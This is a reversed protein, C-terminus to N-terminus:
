RRWRDRWPRRPGRARPSSASSSAPAPRQPDAKVAYHAARDRLHRIVVEGLIYLVALCMVELDLQENRDHIKKWERYSRGKRWKRLGVEATLQRAYEEDVWEPFHMYGPGPTEVKLRSYVIGKATDTCMTFLKGGYKKERTPRGVVPLGTLSGGRLAFVRQRINGVAREARATCFRYAQETHGVKGHTDVGVAEIYMRRGNAHEFAQTLFRDAERWVDDRLPDGFFQHIAILWSEEGAGYGKVKVELRDAQGDVAAILIGVGEPVEGAYREARATIPSAEAKDGKEEWTEGLRTNVWVKLKRPDNGAALFERVIDRWSLWGIPSYLASLHFGVSIGDGQATARWQGQELMWTKHREEILANCSACALRTTEPDDNEWRIQGWRIWDWHGCEPCPVFFRRQDTKLYEREIRSSHRDKPTSVIYHKRRRNFTTTRVEALDLPDGEGDVDDPYGDVEDPFLFRVTTARLAAASNAGTMALFGGPFEKMLLTNGGDRSKNQAIRAALEPTERIMPSIREKSAKKADDGRPLVMLIPAPTHCVIYAVWNNGAETAGIRSGKMFIVRQAPHSPTLCDMIERLYPTRSTRWQGPEAAVESGLMRNRDAWESVTLHPDPEWGSSWAEGAVRVAVSM